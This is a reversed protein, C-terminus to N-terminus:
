EVRDLDLVMSGRYFLYAAGAMFMHSIDMHNFWKSLGWGATFFTASIFALFVAWLFFKSGRNKSRYYIFASFSGVVGLLGYASHIEVYIFQLTTFALVMFTLLEIITMWSFVKGWFSTVYTKARIIVAREALTVAVMSTLWGPLKWEFSLAYLFGHGILGGIATAVGMFLFFYKLFLNVSSPEKKRQIQVFAYFCVAAVILDTLTTMPEEVKVDGIFIPPQAPLDTKFM